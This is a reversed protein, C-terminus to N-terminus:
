GFLNIWKMIPAISTVIVLIALSYNYQLYRKELLTSLRHMGFPIFVYFIPLFSLTYRIAVNQWSSITLIMLFSFSLLTIGIIKKQSLVEKIGLIAMTIGAIGFNSIMLRCYFKIAYMRDINQIISHYNDSLHHYQAASGIQMHRYEYMFDVFSKKIEFITFPSFIFFGIIIIFSSKLYLPSIFKGAGYVKEVQIFYALVLLGISVVLSLIILKKLLQYYEAELIGDTTLGILGQIFYNEYIIFVSIILLLGAGSIGTFALQFHKEGQSNPNREIFHYIMIFLSLILLAGTYKMSVSIGILISLFFIKNPSFNSKIIWFILITFFLLCFFSLSVDVIAYQSHQLLISSLIAFCSGILGLVYTGFLTCIIFVMMPMCAVFVNSVFWSIKYADDITIQKIFISCVKYVLALINMHGAPYRFFGPNFEGKYIRFATDVVSPEDVHAPYEAIGPFTIFQVVISIIFIGLPTIYNKNNM